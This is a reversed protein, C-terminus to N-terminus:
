WWRCRRTKHRTRWCSSRWSRRWRTCTNRQRHRGCRRESEAHVVRTSPVNASVAAVVLQARKGVPAVAAVVGHAVAAGRARSGVALGVQRHVAGDRCRVWRGRRGGGRDRWTPRRGSRWDSRHRRGPSGPTPPMTQAGHGCPGTEVVVPLTAGQSVKALPREVLDPEMAHVCQAILADRAVVPEAHPERASPVNASAAAVNLQSCQGAPLNQETHSSQADPVQALPWVPRVTHLAM